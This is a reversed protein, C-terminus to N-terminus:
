VVGKAGDTERKKEAEVDEENREARGEEKTEAASEAMEVDEATTANSQALPATVTAAAPVPSDPPTVQPGPGAQVSSANPANPYTSGMSVGAAQGPQALTSSAGSLNSAVEEGPAAQAPAPEALAAMVDQGVVANTAAVNEPNDLVMEDPEDNSATASEMPTQAGSNVGDEVGPAHPNRYDMIGPKRKRGNPQRKVGNREKQEEDDSDSLEGEHEIRQDWRRETYRSNKNMDDDEDDLRGEREDLDEANGENDPDNENDGPFLPARPVDTMQVSPAFQTMRLNEFVQTKIKELYEPSNANDM